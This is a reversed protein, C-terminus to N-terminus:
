EVILKNKSEITIDNNDTNEDNNIKTIYKKICQSIEKMADNDELHMAIGLLIDYLQHDKVGYKIIESVINRAEEKEKALKILKINKSMIQVKKTQHLGEGCKRFIKFKDDGLITLIKVQEREAIIERKIVIDEGWAENENIDQIQEWISIDADYQNLVNKIKQPLMLAIDDKTMVVNSDDKGARIESKCVEYVYHMAECNNCKALRPILRNTSVDIKSYVPFKHYVHKDKNGKYIALTCHCEVLHKVGLKM